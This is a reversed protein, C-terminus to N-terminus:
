NRECSSGSFSNDRFLSEIMVEIGYRGQHDRVKVDLVPGIKTELFGRDWEPHRKVELYRTLEFFMRWKMPGKKKMM